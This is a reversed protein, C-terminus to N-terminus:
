WQVGRMMQDLAAEVREDQQDKLTLYLSWPDVIGNEAFLEPDYGWVEIEVAGPEAVPLEAITAEAKLTKWKNRSVAFVEHDPEALDTRRALATLGAVPGATQSKPLRIHIRKRMPNRLYPLAKEWLERRDAPVTLVRQRGNQIVKVLNTAELEDFVRTMSMITYGLERAAEAPTIGTAHDQRRLLHIILAQTAPAFQPTEVQLKRFHERLDLGLMPLYMQNGPVIFPIKQEILRKRNYSTVRDRVYIIDANWKDRVLTLHKRVTAPSLEEKAKDRMLLCPHGNITAQFFAYQDRLFAPLRGGDRWPTATVQVDLAEKLYRELALLENTM